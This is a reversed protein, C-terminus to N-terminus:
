SSKAAASKSSTECYHFLFFVLLLASLASVSDLLSDWISAGRSPVFTQHFEDLLSYGAAIGWAMWAWSWNWGGRGRRVGRFVLLVFISYECVHAIKRVVEHLLSITDRSFTPFFWSLLPEIFRGTHQASLVDTSAGFILAAWLFAPWWAHLWAPIMAKRPIRHRVDDPDRAPRPNRWPESTSMPSM